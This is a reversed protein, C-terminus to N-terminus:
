TVGMEPKKNTELLFNLEKIPRYENINLLQKNDIPGMLVGRWNDIDLLNLGYNVEDLTLRDYENLVEQLTPVTGLRLYNRANIQMRFSPAESAMALFGKRYNIAKDMEDKTIGFNQLKKLEETILGLVESLSDPSTAFFIGWIGIDSFLEYFSSIYSVLAKEEELLSVLRSSRSAGIIQNLVALAFRRQDTIPITYNGILGYVQKLDNRRIIGLTTSLNKTPTVWNLQYVENAGFIGQARAQSLVESLELNGAVSICLRRNLWNHELREELMAQTIGRVTGVSGGVALGLSNQPFMEQFFVESLFEEPDDQAELIEQIIVNKELDFDQPNYKRRKLMSVLIPFVESFKEKLMSAYITMEEQTTYGNVFVGLRELTRAIDYATKDETGKFTMHEIFHTIGNNTLDEDRSGTEFMFGLALSNLWPMSETVVTVRQNLKIINIASETM